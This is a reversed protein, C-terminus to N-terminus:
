LRPALLQLGDALLQPCCLRNIVCHNSTQTRGEGVSGEPLQKSDAGPGRAELFLSPGSAVRNHSMVASSNSSNSPSACVAQSLFQIRHLGARRQVPCVSRMWSGQQTWTRQQEAAEILLEEGSIADVQVPYYGM